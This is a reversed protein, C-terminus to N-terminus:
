SFDQLATFPATSFSRLRDISSQNSGEQEPALQNQHPPFCSYQILLIDLSNVYKYGETIDKLLIIEILSFYLCKTGLDDIFMKIYKAPTTPLNKKKFNLM